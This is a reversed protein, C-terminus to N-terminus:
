NNNRKAVDCNGVVCNQNEVAESVSQGHSEIGGSCVELYFLQSATPSDHYTCKYRTTNCQPYLSGGSLIHIRLIEFCFHYIYALM